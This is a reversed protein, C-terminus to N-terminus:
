PASQGHRRASLQWAYLDLYTRASREWSYDQAMGNRVLQEWLPRDQFCRHAWRVTDRLAEPTPADFSFGTAREPNSGDYAVVTDELGGVRRVIPPTGYALSYLQSLGCPEFRSPMLFADAGAEILHALTDDFGVYAWLRRRARGALGRLEAELQPEGAGLFVFRVGDRLLEDLAALALDYGKQEALRGVSGVLFGPDEPDMGAMTLLTRRNEAKGVLDGPGYRRPIRPDLAPNWVARDIGNVIGVLNDGRYRFIPDLGFGGEPTTIERAFTPSVANLANAALTAGKLLNLRDNWVVAALMERPLGLYLFDGKDYIGQFALNHITFISVSARLRPDAPRDWALAMPVLAAHWDHAHFVEPVRDLRKMAELAARVFVAYRFLGDDRGEPDPSYLGPRDFFRDAAVFFVPVPSDPLRGRLVAVEHAQYGLEIQFPPCAQELALGRRAVEQRVQRYLPAWVAVEHGLRSQAPPLAGLVDGLGGTRAFPDVEAALHAIRM